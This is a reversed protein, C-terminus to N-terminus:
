YKRSNPSQSKITLRVIKRGVNWFFASLCSAVIVIIPLLYNIIGYEIIGLRNFLLNFIDIYLPHIIYIMTTAYTGIWLLKKFVFSNRYRENFYNEACIAYCFISVVSIVTGVYLDYSVNCYIVEFVALLLGLLFMGMWILRRRVITGADNIIKEKIIIGVSFFPIGMFLWNRYYYPEEIDICSYQIIYTFVLLLPLYRWIRYKYICKFFVAYFVYCFLLAMLFWLHWAFAPENYLFWVAINDWIMIKFWESISCRTNGIFCMRLISWAMYLLNSSGILILLRKIKHWFIRRYDDVIRNGNFLFFGSIIFFLPVSIRAWGRVCDGVMGPVKAHIFVVLFAALAEVVSLLEMRKCDSIKM